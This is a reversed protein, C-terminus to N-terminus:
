SSDFVELLAARQHEGLGRLRRSHAIGLRDMLTHGRAPGIGPMATLLDIVRMRALADEEAARAIVQALTLTGSRLNDKVQARLTRAKAARVLADARQEATLTPLAV